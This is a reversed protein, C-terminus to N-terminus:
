RIHCVWDRSCVTQHKNRLKLYGSITVIMYLTTQVLLILVLVDNEEIILLLFMIFTLINGILYIIRSQLIFFITLINGTITFAFQLPDLIPKRNYFISENPIKSIGFVGILLGIILLITALLITQWLKMNISKYENGSRRQWLFSQTLLVTGVCFWKLADFILHSILSNLTLLVVSPIAFFIFEKKNRNIFLLSLIALTAGIPTLIMRSIVSLSKDTWENCLDNFSIDNIEYLNFFYLSIVILSTLSMLAIILWFSTKSKLVWDVYKKFKVDM